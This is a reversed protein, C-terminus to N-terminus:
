FPIAFVSRIIDIAIKNPANKKWKAISESDPNSPVKLKPSYAASRNLIVGISGVGDKFNSMFDSWQYINVTQCGESVGSYRNKFKKSITTEYATYKFRKLGWFTGTWNKKGAKHINIGKAYTKGTAPNVSGVIPLKNSGSTTKMQLAWYKGQHKHRKAHYFGAQVTAFRVPDSPMTNADFTATTPSKTIVGDEDVETTYSYVTMSASGVNFSSYRQKKEQWSGAKWTGKDQILIGREFYGDKLEGKDDYANEPDWEFGTVTGDKDSTTKYELGELETGDMVRNESFAYPSNWTFQSELPDVAFFRGLRPDYMRYKYNVSGGTVNKVEFDTEQGQFGYRYVKNGNADIDSSTQVTHRSPMPSGFPYYDLVNKLDTRRKESGVVKLFNNKELTAGEYYTLKLAGM